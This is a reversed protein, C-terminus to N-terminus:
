IFKKKYHFDKSFTTNRRCPKKKITGTLYRSLLYIWSICFITEAIGDIAYVSKFENKATYYFDIAALGAATLLALVIATIPKGKLWLHILLTLSIALLLVSVTKVLWIDAKEGTVKMFSDIDVIGWVATILSYIAQVLLTVKYLKYM